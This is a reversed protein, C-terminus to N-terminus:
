GGNVICIDTKSPGCYTFDLRASKDCAPTNSGVKKPNQGGFITFSFTDYVGTTASPRLAHLVVTATYPYM